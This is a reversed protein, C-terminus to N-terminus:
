KKIIDRITQFNPHKKYYKLLLKDFEKTETIRLPNDQKLIQKFTQWLTLFAFLNEENKPLSFFHQNLSLLLKSYLSEIKNEIIVKSLALLFEPFLFAKDLLPLIPNQIFLPEKLLFKTLAQQHSLPLKYEIVQSAFHILEKPDEIKSLLLFPNESQLWKQISPNERKPPLNKQSAQKELDAIKKLAAKLLKELHNVQEKKNQKYLSLYHSRKSQHTLTEYAENIQQLTPHNEQHNPNRDPHYKKVLAKYSAKLVEESAEPDIQLIKFYDKFPM